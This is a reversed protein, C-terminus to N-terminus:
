KVCTRARMEQGIGRVSNATTPIGFLALPSDGDFFTRVENGVFLFLADDIRGCRWTGGEKQKWPRAMVRM